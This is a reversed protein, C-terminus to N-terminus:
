WVSELRNRTLGLGNEFRERTLKSLYSYDRLLHHTIRFYFFLLFFYPFILRRYTFLSIPCYETRKIRIIPLHSRLKNSGVCVVSGWTCISDM